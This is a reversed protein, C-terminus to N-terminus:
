RTDRLKRKEEKKKKKEKKKKEGGGSIFSIDRALRAFKSAQKRTAANIDSVPLWLICTFIFRSVRLTKLIARSFITLPHM